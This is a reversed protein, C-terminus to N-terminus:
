FKLINKFKLLLLFFVNIKEKMHREYTSGAKLYKKYFKFTIPQFVELRMYGYVLIQILNLYILTFSLSHLISERTLKPHYDSCSFIMEFLNDKFIQSYIISM